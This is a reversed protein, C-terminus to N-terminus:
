QVFHIPFIELREELVEMLLDAKEPYRLESLRLVLQLM